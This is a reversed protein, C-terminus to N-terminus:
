GEGWKREVRARMTRAADRAMREQDQKTWAFDAPRVDTHLLVAYFYMCRAYTRPSCVLLSVSLQRAVGARSGPRFRQGAAPVDLDFAAYAREIEERTAKRADYPVPM